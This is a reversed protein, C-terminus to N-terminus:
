LVDGKKRFIDIVIGNEEKHNNELQLINSSDIDKELLRLQQRSDKNLFLVVVISGIELDEEISDSYKCTIKSAQVGMDKPILEVGCEKSNNNISLVKALSAVQLRRMIRNELTLLVSLLDDKKFLSM